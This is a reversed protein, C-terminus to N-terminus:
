PPNILPSRAHVLAIDREGRDLVVKDVLCRLLAKRQADTTTEDAWIQPLRGSLNVIKSGLDRGIAMQTISQVPAQRALMGEAERVEKLAVEWRRELEDAVLRNDPDVRNFQREALSAAYGKRKLELEASGHLGKDLQHQSRRAQSLADLEAPALATLIM